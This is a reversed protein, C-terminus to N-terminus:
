GEVTGGPLPPNVGAGGGGPKGGPQHEKGEEVINDEEIAVGRDDVKQWSVEAAFQQSFKISVTCGLRSRGNAANVMKATAKVKDTDKVSCQLNPYVTLFKDGLNCRFGKLVNRQVVKMFDTVAAQMISPEISTNDCAERCLEAFTLTDNPIPVAYFSHKGLKKNERVTYKVRAMIYM